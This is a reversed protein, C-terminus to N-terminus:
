EESEEDQSKESPDGLPLAATLRTGTRPISEITLQGSLLAARERMGALGSSTGIALAAEHDFGSGQDEIQVSLTDQNAWIRVTVESVDAHRAVNTLAEQVIRYAATEVEPAFRRREIDTHTFIVRVNTQGTYRKFHWLLAPLLGLDDLMMPRLDLSLDRVQTMLENVLTQAENFYSEINEASSRSAMDLVLKLGTLTQGIEDHLERAIHRRESEQVEVLRQSLTRLRDRGARVQEYLRANEIAIAASAALPELLILDTADFCGVKTDVAQLVGIVDEKVRLPVTLISRLALGSQQDVGKFHREDARTDSVIQSEGHRAVWGALGQGQALRWGRVVENKYGSAQQCVLENTERDILWVSCALVDLLHRVEELFAVLVQDLNLTSGLAQSARNLLALERNRQRLTKEVQKREIAYRMARVLLNGDVQGKLLYDQAGERVARVAVAEDNLSTLVVIPMQPAQAHARAFTDFGQSDPLMLDLLVVDIRGTSLRELGSSLLDVVELDFLAGRVNALMERMLYAYEPDDEILLVKSKDDMEKVGAAALSAHDPAAQM